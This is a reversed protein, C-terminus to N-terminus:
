KANLARLHEAALRNTPELRLATEWAERAKAPNKELAYATGLDIWGQADNTGQRAALELYVVANSIQGAAAYSIGLAATIRHEDPLLDHAQSLTPLMAEGQSRSISPDAQLHRTTDDLGFSSHMQPLAFIATVANERLRRHAPNDLSSRVFLTVEDRWIRERALSVPIWLAFLGVALGVSAVRRPAWAWVAGLALLWGVLPLYLFREALYQMMPVLNSVPLLFLSLWLLGLSAVRFREDRWAVWAAAAWLLLLLLGTMVPVSFFRLHGHMDTYDISFPPVGWLL